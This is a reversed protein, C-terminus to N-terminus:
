NKISILPDITAARRAPLWAALLAAMALTVAVLAYVGVDHPQVEFLFAKILTALAAAGVLGTTLGLGVYAAVFGILVDTVLRTRGAGLAMRVAIEHTREAVDCAVVGYIGAAAIAVGM